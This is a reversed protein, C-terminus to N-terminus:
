TCLDSKGHNKVLRAAAAPTQVQLWMGSAQSLLLDANQSYHRVSM